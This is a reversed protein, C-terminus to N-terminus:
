NEGLGTREAFSLVEQKFADDEVFDLPAKGDNNKSNLKAGNELLLKALDLSDSNHKACVNHLLTSGKNNKEDVNAGRDILTAIM